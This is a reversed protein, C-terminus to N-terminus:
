PQVSWPRATAVITAPRTFYRNDSGAKAQCNRVLQNLSHTSGDANLARRPACGERDFEWCSNM